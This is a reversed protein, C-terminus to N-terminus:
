SHNQILSKKGSANQRVAIKKNKILFFSYTKEAKECNKELADDNDNGILEIM